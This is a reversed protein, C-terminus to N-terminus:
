VVYCVGEQNVNIYKIEESYCATLYIPLEYKSYYYYAYDILYENSQAKKTTILIYVDKDIYAKFEDLDEKKYTEIEQYFIEGKTHNFQTFSVLLFSIVSMVILLSTIMVISKIASFFSIKM